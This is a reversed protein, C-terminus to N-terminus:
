GKLARKRIARVANALDENLQELLEDRPMTFSLAKAEGKVFKNFLRPKDKGVQFELADEDGEACEVWNGVDKFQRKHQPWSVTTDDDETVITCNNFDFFEYMESEALYDLAYHDKGEYCDLRYNMQSKVAKAWETASEFFEGMEDYAATVADVDEKVWVIAQALDGGFDREEEIWRFPDIVDDWACVATDLTGEPTPEQSGGHWNSQQNYAYLAAGGRKSEPSDFCFYGGSRGESFFKPFQYTCEEPVICDGDFDMNWFDDVQMDYWREHMSEKIEPPGDLPYRRVKVNVCLHIPGYGRNTHRTDGLKDFEIIANEARERAEVLEPYELFKDHIKTRETM